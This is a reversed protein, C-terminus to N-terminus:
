KRQPRAPVGIVTEGPRVDRTVVAGAGVVADKGISIRPLVTAGAGIWAHDGVQVDGCLTAGPAIEVGDGLVCEHDISAKTNIICQRGIKVLPQIIAGAMVQIGEGIICDEAIIATEHVASVPVLGASVLHDHLRLRVAGHPNGITIAFGLRDGPRGELWERFGVEGQRLDVDQFPRPLDPTDDIVVVLLHGSREIIPRLVKAQGTGGWFLVPLIETQLQSEDSTLM